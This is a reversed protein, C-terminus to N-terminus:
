IKKITELIRKKNDDSIDLSYDLFKKVELVENKSLSKKVKTTRWTILESGGHFWYNTEYKMMNYFEMQNFPFDDPIEDEDLSFRFATGDFSKEKLIMPIEVDYELNQFAVTRQITVKSGIDVNKYQEFRKAEIEYLVNDDHVKTAIENYATQLTKITLHQHRFGLIFIIFTFSLFLIAISLIYMM